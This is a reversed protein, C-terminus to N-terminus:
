EAPIRLVDDGSTERDDIEAREAAAQQEFREALDNLATVISGGAKAKGNPKTEENWRTQNIWTTPNCWPRDDTKAIYRDLGDMITQFSTGETLAKALKKRSGKPDIKNPYKRWFQEFFDSPAGPPVLAVVRSGEGKQTQDADTEARSQRQEPATVAVTESVTVSVDHLTESVNRKQKPQKVSVTQKKARHKKVRDTSVDSKYQYQEWKHPRFGTETKDLLKARELTILLELTQQMNIRLMLALDDAAPIAGDCQSAASLVAVWRWRTAEPLKLIKPDNIANGYFRFWLTM